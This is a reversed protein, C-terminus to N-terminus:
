QHIIKHVDIHQSLPLQVIIGNINLDMNLKEILQLVEAQTIDKPLHFLSTRLGIQQAMKQKNRVYILSAEDDGVMIIALHPKTSLVSIKEKLSQRIEFAIKQGDILKAVM